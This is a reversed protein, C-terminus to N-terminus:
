LMKKPKWNRAMERAKELQQPSMKKEIVDRNHFADEVGQSGALSFWMHASVYNEPTGQGKAYVLGVNFQADADGQEAALRFWKSAEKYDQPVGQGIDYMLGLATQARADGRGALPLWLKYATEYDKREYADFGAQYDDAFVVSSSSFFLLFTLALTLPKTKMGLWFCFFRSFEVPDSSRDWM